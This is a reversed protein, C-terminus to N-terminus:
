LLLNSLEDFTPMNTMSSVQNYVGEYTGPLTEVMREVLNSKSIIHGVRKLHMRIEQLKKLYEQVLGGYLLRISNLKDLLMFHFANNAKEFCDKLANWAVRPNTIDALTNFIPRNNSTPDTYKWTNEKM